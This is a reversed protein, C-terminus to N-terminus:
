GDGGAAMERTARTLSEHREEHSQACASSSCSCFSTSSAAFTLFCAGVLFFAAALFFAGFFVKVTSESSSMYSM